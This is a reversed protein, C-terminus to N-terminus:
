STSSRAIVNYVDNPVLQEFIPRGADLARAPTTDVTFTFDSRIALLAHMVEVPDRGLRQAVGPHAEFAVLIEGARRITEAAGDVVSVETGEVDIKIVCSGDDAIELDDVRQMEVPGDDCPAIYARRAETAIRM